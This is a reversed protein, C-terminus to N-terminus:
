RGNPGVEPPLTSSQKEYLRVCAPRVVEQWVLDGSTVVEPAKDYADGFRHLLSPIERNESLQLITRFYLLRDRESLEKGPNCWTLLTKKHHRNTVALADDLRRQLDEQLRVVFHSQLPDDAPGDFLESPPAYFLTYIDADPIQGLDRLDDGSNNGIYRSSGSVGISIPTDPDIRKITRSTEILWNRLYRTAEDSTLNSKTLHSGPFEAIEWAYVAQNCDYWPLGLNENFHTLLARIRHQYAAIADHQIYMGAPGFTNAYLDLGGLSIILQIEHKICSAMLEDVGKLANWHFDGIPKELSVARPPNEWWLDNDQNDLVIRIVRIGSNELTELQKERREPPIRWIQPSDVGIWIEPTKTLTGIKKSAALDDSADQPMVRSTFFQLRSLPPNNCGALIFWSAMCISVISQIEKAAGSSRLIM